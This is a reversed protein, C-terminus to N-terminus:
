LSFSDLDPIWDDQNKDVSFVEDTDHVLVSRSLKADPFIRGIAHSLKEATVPKLVYGSAGARIAEIVMEEQGHSTVMIIKAAENRKRIGRVAEIGDMDPMTIDMTVLDPAHKTYCAIAEKGNKAEAVIEHGMRELMKAINRRIILSDDVIEIKLM